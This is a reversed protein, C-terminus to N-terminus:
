VKEAIRLKASRARPNQNIEAEDPTIPKRSILKWVGTSGGKLFDEKANEVKEAFFDKVIRDELSHYSIIALRGGTKLVDKCQNLFSQLGELEANVEIRISQFVMAKYKKLDLSKPCITNIIETLRGTTEIPQIAREHIIAMSLQRANTIEGYSSFIQQLKEQPYTNLIDAATLNGEKDMRMDLPADFRFSFGREATDVHHSSLGLDAMIGDVPIADMYRLYNKLHTFEHHILTFNKAEPINKQADEDRDFAILKGEKSLQNLLYNSHGGGGFTADVYVGNKQVNLGDVTATLLAPIHYEIPSHTVM